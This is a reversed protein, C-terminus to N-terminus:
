PGAGKEPEIVSGRYKMIGYAKGPQGQVAGLAFNGMPMVVLDRKILSSSQQAVMQGAMAIEHQLRPYCCAFPSEMLPQKFKKRQANEKRWWAMWGKVDYRKRGSENPVEPRCLLTNTVLLVQSRKLGNARWLLEDLKVGSPGVFPERRKVENVGPAEGVLALPFALKPDGWKPPVVVAGQTRLPCVDCRTGWSEPSYASASQVPRNM